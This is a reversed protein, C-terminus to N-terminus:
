GAPIPAPQSSHRFVARRHTCRRTQRVQPLTPQQSEEGFLCALAMGRGGTM